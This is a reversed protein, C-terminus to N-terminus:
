RAEVMERLEDSHHISANDMIPVSNPIPFLNTRELVFEIFDSFIEQTPPRKSVDVAIIGGLSLAPVITYR